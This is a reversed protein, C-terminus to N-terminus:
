GHEPPVLSTFGYQAFHRDFAFAANIGLREMVAFSTADTLSFDKDDYQVLIQRARREDDEGVREVRTSGRDITELTRLAEARGLRKLVLAHLEALVFNTTTLRWRESALRALVARAVSHDADFRNAIPFYASTDIFARRRHAARWQSM